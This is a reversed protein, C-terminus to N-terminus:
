ESVPNVKEAYLVADAVTYVYLYFIYRATSAISGPVPSSPPHKNLWIYLSSVPLSESTPCIGERGKAERGERRKDEKGKGKRGKRRNGVNL